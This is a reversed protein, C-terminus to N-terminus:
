FLFEYVNCWYNEFAVYPQNDTPNLALSIGFASDSSFGATGVTIWNVWQVSNKSYPM